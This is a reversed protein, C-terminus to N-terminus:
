FTTPKRLTGDTFPATPKGWDESLDRWEPNTATILQLKKIRLWGKLEKERAIATQIHQFHEVHVLHHIKYKATFSAPNNNTKHQHIRADLNNTVGIYLRQFTSALIYVYYHHDPM